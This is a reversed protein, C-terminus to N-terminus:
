ITQLDDELSYLDEEDPLPDNPIKKLWSQPMHVNDGVGGFETVLDSRQSKVLWITGHQPHNVFDVQVCEVIKGVAHNDLSKIVLALDGPKLDNM